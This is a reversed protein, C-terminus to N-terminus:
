SSLALLTSSQEKAPAMKGWNMISIKWISEDFMLELIASVSWSVDTVSSIVSTLNSAWESNSKFKKSVGSSEMVCPAKLLGFETSDDIENAGVGSGGFELLLIKILLLLWVIDEVDDGLM